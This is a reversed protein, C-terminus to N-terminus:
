VTAERVVEVQMPVPRPEYADLMLRWRTAGSDETEELEFGLTRYMERVMGNKETPRYLGV